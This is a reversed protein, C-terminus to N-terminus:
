NWENCKKFKSKLINIANNRKKSSIPLRKKEKNLYYEGHPVIQFPTKCVDKTSLYQCDM